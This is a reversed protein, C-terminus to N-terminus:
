GGPRAPPPPVDGGLRWFTTVRDAARMTGVTEGRDRRAEYAQWELPQELKARAFM